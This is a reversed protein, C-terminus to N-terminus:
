VQAQLQDALAIMRGFEIPDFPRASFDLLLYEGILLLGIDGPLLAPVSTKSLQRAASSDSSYLTYREISLLAPFSALSFLDVLSTKSHTPRLGTPLWSRGIKRILVSWRQPEVMANPNAPVGAITSHMQVITTQNSELVWRPQVNSTHDLPPPLRAFELPILRFGHERGFEELELRFRHSTARRVLVFFVALSVGFVVLLAFFAVLSFTGPPIPAGLIFM